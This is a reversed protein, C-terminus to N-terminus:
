LFLFTIYISVNESGVQSTSTINILSYPLLSKYENGSRRHAVHNQLISMKKEYSTEKNYIKGFAEDLPCFIHYAEKNITKASNQLIDNDELAKLFQGCGAAKGLKKLTLNQDDLCFSIGDKGNCGYFVIMGFFSYLLDPFYLPVLM